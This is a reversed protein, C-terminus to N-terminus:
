KLVPGVVLLRCLLLSSIANLKTALPKARWVGLQTSIGGVLSEQIRWQNTRTKIIMIIIYVSEILLLTDNHPLQFYFIVCVVSLAFM